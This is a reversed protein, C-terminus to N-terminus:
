TPAVRPRRRGLWGRVTREAVDDLTGARKRMGEAVEEALGQSQTAIARGLEPSKTVHELARQMEESKLIADTLEVLLQSDLTRVILQELYGDEALTVAVREIVRHEVLERAFSETLPGELVRDVARELEPRALSYAGRASATVPWFAVSLLGM